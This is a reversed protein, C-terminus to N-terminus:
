GDTCHPRVLKQCCAFEDMRCQDRRAPVQWIIKKTERLLPNGLSSLFGLTWSRRASRGTSNWSSVGWGGQHLAAPKANMLRKNSRNCLRQQGNIRIVPHWDISINSIKTNPLLLGEEKGYRECWSQPGVWCEKLNIDPTGDSLLASPSQLKENGTWESGDMPSIVFAQVPRRQPVSLHLPLKVNNNNGDTNM